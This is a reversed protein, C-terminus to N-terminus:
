VSSGPRLRLGRTLFTCSLAAVAGAAALFVYVAPKGAWRETVPVTAVAAAAGIVASMAYLRADRRIFSSAIAIAVGAALAAQWALTYGLPIMFFAFFPTALLAAYATKIDTIGLAAIVIYVVLTGIAPGLALFVVANLMVGVAYHPWNRGHPAVFVQASV